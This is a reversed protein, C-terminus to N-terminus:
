TKALGPIWLPMSCPGANSLPQLRGQETLLHLYTEDEETEWPAAVPMPTNATSSCLPLQLAPGLM